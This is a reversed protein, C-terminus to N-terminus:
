AAFTACRIITRGNMPGSSIIFQSIQRSKLQVGLFALSPGAAAKVNLTASNNRREGQYGRAQATIQLKNGRSEM